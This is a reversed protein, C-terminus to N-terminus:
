LLAPTSPSTTASTEKIVTRSRPHASPTTTKPQITPSDTFTSRDSTPRSVLPPEVFTPIPSADTSNVPMAPRTNQRTRTNLLTPSLSTLTLKPLSIWTPQSIHQHTLSTTTPTTHTLTPSPHNSPHPLFSFFFYFPSRPPCVKKDQLGM